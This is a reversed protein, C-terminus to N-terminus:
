GSPTIPDDDIVSPPFDRADPGPQVEDYPPPLRMFQEMEPLLPAVDGPALAGTRERRAMQQARMYSYKEGTHRAQLAADKLIVPRIFVMLNTKETVNQQYKFLWGLVPIDGLLPVKQQAERLRDEILGGLVLVQGDDVMVNTKISRKNTVIDVAQASETVSSTEQVIELRIADGENIQPKLRLTVGVDQRQITQFPNQPVAGTGTTSYVGTVFPVNQGVVIEAEENDMTVLSPTSLINTSGDSALSRIFAGWNLANDTFDGLGLNLGDGIRPPDSLLGTISDGTSFNIVGVANDGNESGDIFWQVGLEVAKEASVEAIVAEVLVQARRVDLQRIVSRLSRFLDPPATIVLANTNEDAQIVVNERQSVPRGGGQAGQGGQQQQESLTESVGTLVPVLEKASAYRLYVVQTAGGTEVATDLHSILARLRLRMSTDGGLLVSNTREDAVATYSQGGKKADQAELQTLIRVVEAASAHELRLVEVEQQVATDIRDVIEAIRSVNAASDSIVLVNSQPYAALHGRQPVLPRLIPVLQAADVHRISLVQTVFEDGGDRGSVTPVADQKAHVDPVIKVAHEGPIAAFGHVKLLSLFVQFLADRDLPRSSIVTVKGKVRPDVIFNKGTVEAVANIVANIDTDSFNLTLQDGAPQPEQAAAPSGLVAVLAVVLLLKTWRAPPRERIDLCIVPSDDKKYAATCGEERSQGGSTHIM